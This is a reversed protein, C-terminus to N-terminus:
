IGGMACGALPGATDKNSQFEIAMSFPNLSFDTDM